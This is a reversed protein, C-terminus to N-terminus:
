CNECLSQIKKSTFFLAILVILFTGIMIPWRYELLFFVGGTGLFSFIVSVCAACTAGAFVGSVISSAGAFITTGAAKVQPAKLAFFSYLQMAILLGMAISLIGIFALQGLPTISLFFGLDNGPVTFIPVFVYLYAMFATALIFAALYRKESLVLRISKKMISIKGLLM